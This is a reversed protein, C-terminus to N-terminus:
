CLKRTADQLPSIDFGAKWIPHPDKFERSVLGLATGNLGYLTGADNLFLAVIKVDPPYLPRCGIIARDVTLPWKDGFQQATVDQSAGTHAASAAPSESAAPTYTVTVPPPTVTVPPATVTGAPATVTVPPLAVTVPPATVTPGTTVTATATVTSATATVTSVAATATVTSTSAAGTTGGSKGAAGIGAGIFLAVLAAIAPLLWRRLGGSRKGGPAASPGATAETDEYRDTWAQGDWYRRRGGEAPYFGPPAAGPQNSM